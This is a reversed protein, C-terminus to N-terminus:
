IGSCLLPRFGIAPHGNKLITDSSGQHTNLYWGSPPIPTTVGTLVRTESVIQGHSNATLDPLMFQVPGQSACSGTHVHAAHRGPTFGSATVTVTLTRAAPNYSVTAQGQPTGFSIGHSNVEVARLARPSGGPNAPLPATQAIPESAVSGGGNGNEIVLRSGAPISGTFTSALTTRAQGLGNVTLTGFTAVTGSGQPGLLAVSHASGPTLGFMDPTATVRGQSNKGLSVTGGPMPTLVLHRTVTVAPTALM